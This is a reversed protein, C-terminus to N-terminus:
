EEKLIISLREEYKMNIEELPLEERFVKQLARELLYWEDILQEGDRIRVKINNKKHFLIFEETPIVRIKYFQDPFINELAYIIRQTDYFEQKEIVEGPKKTGIDLGTLIYLDFSNNFQELVSLIVGKENVLYFRDDWSITLVPQRERLEINLQNPFIKKVSVDSIWPNDLLNKRTNETNFHFLNTQPEIEGQNIIGENNLHKNGEINVM